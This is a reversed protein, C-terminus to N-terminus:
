LSIDSKETGSGEGDRFPREQGGGRQFDEPMRDPFGGQPMESGDPMEPAQGDPMEPMEPAQGDPLNERGQGGNERGGRGGPMSGGHGGFGGTGSGYILSDMTITTDNGGATLTYTEGTKLEPCSVVVSNFASEATCSVLVNGAADALSIEDGAQCNSVMTLISGQTSAEGFNMAMQSSGAAVLIGGTITGAGGYDLAGNAGNEPGSVYTEGGTVTLDGNSDLGDGAANVYLLGGSITLSSDSSGFMDGRGAFGGFGSQDNGGAANIGDDTVCIQIKGGSIEVNNGEIGEYGTEIELSGGAVTVSTDSHLGDDGTALQITGGNVALDGGAHIADDQCDATIIGGNLVIGGDSKLGKASVTDGNEDTAATRNGNGGAATIDFTGGDIQLCLGASIGDGQSDITIQGDAAYVYGKQANDNNESHIGDKGSVINLQGDAIRVSDKGELGHGDPAEVTITGGTVALDDKSVVGNGTEAQVELSGTGNVTLDCRAFIAGDISNGESDTFERGSIMNQTGEPLTLFLKDAEKAYIAANEGGSIEVGNLVLQVKDTDPADVLIRGELSGSLVYVGEETITVTNGDIRVSDAQCSAGDETLTVAISEAEDYKGSLDRDTFMESVDPLNEATGYSAQESGSLSAEKEPEDSSETQGGSQCASLSCVTLACALAASCLKWVMKRKM